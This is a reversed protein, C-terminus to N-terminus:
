CHCFVAWAKPGIDFSLLKGDEWEKEKVPDGTGLEKRVDVDEGAQVRKIVEHLLTMKAEAQRTSQFTRSKLSLIQIAQSGCLIGLFLVPTAPNRFM